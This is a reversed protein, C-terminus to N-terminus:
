KTKGTVLRGRKLLWLRYTIFEHDKEPDMNCTFHVDCVIENLEEHRRKDGEPYSCPGSM